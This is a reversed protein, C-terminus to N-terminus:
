GSLAASIAQVPRSLKREIKSAGWKAALAFATVVGVATGFGRVFSMGAERAVTTQPGQQGLGTAPAMPPTLRRMM